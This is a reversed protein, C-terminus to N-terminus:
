VRERCSARGIEELAPTLHNFSLFVGHSAALRRVAEEPMTQDSFGHTWFHDMDTARPIIRLNFGLDRMVRRTEREAAATTMKVAVLLAVAIVLGLTVLLANAWHHRLERLILDALSM